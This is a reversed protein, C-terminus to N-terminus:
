RKGSGPSMAEMNLLPNSITSVVLLLSPSAAQAPPIHQLGVFNAGFNHCWCIPVSSPVALSWRRIGAIQEEFRAQDSM